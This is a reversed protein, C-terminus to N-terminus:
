DAHTVSKVINMRTWPHTLAHKQLKFSVLFAFCKFCLRPYTHNTIFPYNLGKIEYLMNRM